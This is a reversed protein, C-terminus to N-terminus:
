PRQDTGLWAGAVPPLVADRGPSAWAGARVGCAAAEDYRKRLEPDGLVERATDLIEQARAVATLVDPPVGSILNRGCGPRRTRTSGQKIKRTRADPM